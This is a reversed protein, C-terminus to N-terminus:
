DILNVTVKSKQLYYFIVTTPEITLKGITNGSDGVLTYGEIVKAETIYDEEVKGIQLEQKALEKNTDKELYKIILSTDKVRYYYIIEELEKTMTGSANEPM